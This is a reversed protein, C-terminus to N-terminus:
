SAQRHRRNAGRVRKRAQVSRTLAWAVVVDSVSQTPNPTWAMGSEGVVFRTGALIRFEGAVYKVLQGKPRSDDADSALHTDVFLDYLGTDYLLIERFWDERVTRHGPFDWLSRPRCDRLSHTSGNRGTVNRLHKGRLYCQLGELPVDEDYLADVVLEVKNGLYIM